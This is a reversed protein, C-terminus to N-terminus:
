QCAMCDAVDEYSNALLDNLEKDINLNPTKPYQLVKSLDRVVTEVPLYMTGSDALSFLVEKRYTMFYPIVKGVISKAVLNDKNFVIPNIILLAKTFSQADFDYEVATMLLINKHSDLIIGSNGYFIENKHTIIKTLKGGECHPLKFLATIISDATRKRLVAEGEYLSLILTKRTDPFSSYKIDKYFSDALMYPVITRNNYDFSMYGFEGYNEFTNLQIACGRDVSQWSNDAIFARDVAREYSSTYNM